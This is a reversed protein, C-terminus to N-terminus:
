SEDEAIDAAFRVAQTITPPHISPQQGTMVFAFMTFTLQVKLEDLDMENM